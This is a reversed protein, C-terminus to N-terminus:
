REPFFVGTIETCLTLFQEQLQIDDVQFNYKSEQQHFFYQGSVMANKEKSVALWVQTEYGKQLDDPANQGGMKTPVWGPNVANAYVQPWKRAVAKCLM